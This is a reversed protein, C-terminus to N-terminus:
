KHTFKSKPPPTSDSNSDNSSEATEYENDSNAEVQNREQIQDIADFWEEDSSEQSPLDRPSPAFTKYQEPIRKSMTLFDKTSINIALLRVKFESSLPSYGPINLDISKLKHQFPTLFDDCPNGTQILFCKQGSEIMNCLMYVTAQASLYIHSMHKKKRDKIVRNAAKQTIDTDPWPNQPATLDTTTLKKHGAQKLSASLLGRGAGLEVANPAMAQLCQNLHTAFELSFLESVQLAGPILRWVLEAFKSHEHPGKYCFIGPSRDFEQSIDLASMLERFDPITEPIQGKFLLELASLYNNILTLQKQDFKNQQILKQAYENLLSMSFEPSYLPKDSPTIDWKPNESVLKLKDELKLKAPSDPKTSFRKAQKGTASKDKKKKPQKEPQSLATAESAQLSDNTTPKRRQFVQCSLLNNTLKPHTLENQGTPLSIFYDELSKKDEPGLKHRLLVGIAFDNVLPFIYNHAEGQYIPQTNPTSHSMATAGSPPLSNM